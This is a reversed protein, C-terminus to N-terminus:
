MRVYKQEGMGFFNDFLVKNGVRDRIYGSFVGTPGHYDVKVIGINLHVPVNAIPAFLLNVQDYRDSILWPKEVGEARMVKVPPLPHMRGDFWLCNENFKEPEQIQNDTLNFGMLIKDTNFGLATVWDYEMVYPYYGKHDDVIACASDKSFVSDAGKFSVM